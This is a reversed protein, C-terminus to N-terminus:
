EEEIEEETYGAARLTEEIHTTMMTRTFRWPVITTEGATSRIGRPLIDHMLQKTTRINRMRATQMYSSLEQIGQRAARIGIEFDEAYVPDRLLDRMFNELERLFVPNTFRRTAVNPSFISANPDIYFSYQIAAAPAYKYVSEPFWRNIPVVPILESHYIFLDRFHELYYAEPPVTVRLWVFVLGTDGPARASRGYAQVFKAFDDPMCHFHIVSISPIDIGLAILDLTVFVVDIDNRRVRELVSVIEQRGSEGHIVAHRIDYQQDYGEQRLTNNLNDAEQRKLTFVIQPLREPDDKGRFADWAQKVAAVARPIAQRNAIDPCIFVFRRHPEDIVKFYQREEQHERPFVETKIVGTLHRLLHDAKKITATSSIVLPAYKLVKRALLLEATTYLGANSGLSGKFTHAEDFVFLSFRSRKINGSNLRSGCKFCNARNESVSRTVSRIRGCTSCRVYERGFFSHVNLSRSQEYCLKDLTAVVINPLFDETEKLTLYVWNFERQPSCHRCIPILRAESPRFDLELEKNCFPCKNLPVQLLTIDASPQYPIGKGSMTGMYFGLTIRHEPPLEENAYAILQFIRELQEATLARIPESIVAVSGPDNYLRKLVITAVIAADFNVESKGTATPTNVVIARPVNDNWCRALLSYILARINYQYLHYRDYPLKSMAKTVIRAAYEFHSFLNKPINASDPIPRKSAENFTPGEVTILRRQDWVGYPMLEIHKKDRLKAIANVTEVYLPIDEIRKIGPDIYIECNRFSIYFNFDQFVSTKDRSENKLVILVHARKSVDDINVESSISLRLGPDKLMLRRRYGIESSRISRPAFEWADLYEAGYSGGYNRDLKLIKPNLKVDILRLTLQADQPENRVKIRRMGAGSIEIVPVRDHPCKSLDVDFEVSVLSPCFRDGEPMLGGLVPARM